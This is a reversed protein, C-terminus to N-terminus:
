YAKELETIILSPDETAYKLWISDGENIGKPNYDWGTRSEYEVGNVIYKVHISHGKYSFIKTVLGRVYGHNKNVIEVREMKEKEGTTGTWYLGGSIIVILVVFFLILKLREM